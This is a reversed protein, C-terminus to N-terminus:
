SSITCAIESLHHARTSAVESLIHRLQRISMSTCCHVLKVIISTSSGWWRRRGYAKLLQQGHLVLEHSHLRLVEHLTLCARGVVLWPHLSVVGVEKRRVRRRKSLCNIWQLCIVPKADDLGLKPKQVDGLDLLGQERCLLKMSMRTSPPSVEGGGNLVAVLHWPGLEVRSKMPVVDGCAQHSALKLLEQVQLLTRATHILVVLFEVVERLVTGVM